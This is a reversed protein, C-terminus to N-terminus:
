KLEPPDDNITWAGVRATSAEVERLMFITSLMTFVVPNRPGHDNLPELPRDLKALQEFRFACSQRAPGIARLVSRSVWRATHDLLQSWHHGQEIHLNKAASAYNSYSRYGGAKFLAGVGVISRATLPVVPPTLQFYRFVESHFYSWTRIHSKNSETASAAYRDDNLDNVM